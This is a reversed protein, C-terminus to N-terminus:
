LDKFEIYLGYREGDQYLYYEGNEYRTVFLGFSANDFELKKGKKDEFEEKTVWDLEKLSTYHPYGFSKTYSSAEEIKRIAEKVCIEFKEKNTVQTQIYDVEISNKPYCDDHRGNLKELVKKLEEMPKELGYLM